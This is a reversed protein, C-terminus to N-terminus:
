NSILVWTNSSENFIHVQVHRSSEGNDDNGDFSIGVTNGNDALSVSMGSHDGAAEGFIDEGMQEWSSGNFEYVRVRGSEVGNDGNVYASIAVVYGGHSLSVSSGSQNGVKVGDIDKGMQEWPSFGDSFNDNFQYVRVVYGTDDDVTKHQDNWHACIAVINGDHSLSASKGSIDGPEKGVIDWGKQVWSSSNQDAVFQYVRVQGSQLHGNDGKLYAGIAVANGDHSLSLSMGSHNDDGGADGYVDEGMQEWSSINLKYISVKRKSDDDKRDGIAIINGDASTSVTSSSMLGDNSRNVIKEWVAQHNDKKPLNQNIEELSEGQDYIIEDHGNIEDHEDIENDADDDDDHVQRQEQSQWISKTHDEESRDQVLELVSKIAETEASFLSIRWICIAFIIIFILKSKATPTANSNPNPAGAMSTRPALSNFALAHTKVQVERRLM